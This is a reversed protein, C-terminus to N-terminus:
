RRPKTVGKKPAAKKGTRAPPPGEAGQRALEAAIEDDTRAVKQHQKWVVVGCGPTKATKWSSCGYFSGRDLIDGDCIPCPAYVTRERANSAGAAFLERAQTEDVESGNPNKKWVVYGCGTDTKSKWSNCGWSAAREVVGGDCRPCPALVARPGRPLVKIEGAAVKSIYTHLQKETQKKGAQEKWYVFGCGTETQSKYTSCGWGNKGEIVGGDCGPMPCAAFVRRHAHLQDPNMTLLGATIDGTFKRADARFTDAMAPVDNPTAREIARLRHEWGGTLDARTMPHDGLALIIGRGKDTANLAKGKRTIYEVAVLREITAARTAPTGLGSDKMADAVEEDEVLKGATAMAALLSAENYAAPAKTQRALVETKTATVPEDVTLHPLLRNDDDGPEDDDAAPKGIPVWKEPWAVRWGEVVERRGAARFWVPSDATAVEVWAVTRELQQSPLLAALVRRAVLDYIRRQDVTLATLNHAADTPILAHHDSVKKDDILPTPDCSALVADAAASYAPDANKVRQVVAPIVNAMDSPLYRSDTRPYSLVKHEEYCAQAAALTAAATMGYKKNAERQLETLDFLKPAGVTELTADVTRVIGKGSARVAAAIADLVDRSDTRDSSNDDRGSRWWGTFTREPGDQEGPATFDSRLVFFDTPTFTSIAVDRHVILALTPTQVRGLSLLTRGGGLSVTAGRTANMGVLWDAEARCRAATELPVMDADSRLAAFAGLIASPTMSSFWAREVPKSAGIYDAILKFILEGERGADCANVVSTVRQDNWLAALQRLRAAGREDRPQHLFRDPLIPLTERSWIKYKDDYADPPSEAVLHGAAATVWWHDSMFGWETTTFQNTSSLAKAVDKAVSPKECIILRTVDSVTRALTWPAVQGVTEAGSM